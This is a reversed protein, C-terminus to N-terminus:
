DDKVNVTGETNFVKWKTLSEDAEFGNKGILLGDQTIIKCFKNSYVKKTSEDWYLLETYLTDGKYNRAIVNNKAEWLKKSEYHKAFNASIMSEVEPYNTFTEVMIGYPFITFSDKNTIIYQMLKARVRVVIKGSDSRILYFNKTELVPITDSSVISNVVEISNSCSYILVFILLALIVLVTKM